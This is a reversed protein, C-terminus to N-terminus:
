VRSALQDYVAKTTYCDALGRHETENKINFYAAISKLAYSSLEPLMKKSLEFTDYRKNEIAAISFKVCAHNIFGLDFRLNHGVIISDGVFERFTQICTKLNGGSEKLMINTIGTLSEIRHSISREPCIMTDFRDIIDGDKVKLASLEIIEDNVLSLGSTEIDILVYSEPLQEIRNERSRSNMRKAMRRKAAKSYGLRLGSLKKIRSPSPRMVLKLGDFDIPEWVNGLTKFDLRQENNTSYVMTARGNKAYKAVREWLNDRVRKNVQGVFVGTNIELLWKTLDGRLATPCDTLAIVIM